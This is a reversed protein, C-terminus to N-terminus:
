TQVEELCYKVIEEPSNILYSGWALKWARRTAKAQNKLQALVANRCETMIKEQEDRTLGSRAEWREQDSLNRWDRM